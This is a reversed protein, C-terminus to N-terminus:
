RNKIYYLDYKLKEATDSVKLGGEFDIKHKVQAWGTLGPKVIYREEYFPIKEKLDDHFEPREPRPGVVSMDGKLINWIQPFEDFRIKRLLKGVRTIRPDENTPRVAALSAGNKESNKIMSRFKIFTFLKGAQGVRKHKYFIPGDSDLRIALMVFPYFPLTIVGVVLSFIIDIIRKTVEQFSKQEGSLYQLFWVQDIVDLPVKGTMREFYDSLNFFRIEKNKLNYFVEIIHPLRYAEPTMVVSRIRQKRILAPLSRQDLLSSTDVIHLANGFQPNDKLFQYLEQSQQNRGVILINNRFGTHKLIINFYYRWPALIVGTIILFLFLTTKPTIRLSPSFYFFAIALLTNILFAYAFTSFFEINNRTVVFEYLNAIYFVLLWLAFILTFAILHISLLGPQIFLTRGYRLTLTAILAVYFISIDGLILGIKKMGIM